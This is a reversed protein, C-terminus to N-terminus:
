QQTVFVPIIGKKGKALAGLAKGLITGPKPGQKPDVPAAYRSASSTTLLDGPKVAIKTADVKCFAYAGLTVMLGVSASEGVAASDVDQWEATPLSPEDVVGCVRSDEAESSLVIEALPIRGTILATHPAADPNLIVVDGRELKTKGMYVFRDAVYGTKPGTVVLSGNIRVNGQVELASAPTITNVGVRGNSVTLVDATGSGLMLRNTGGQAYIRADGAGAGGLAVGMKLRLNHNGIKLDGETGAVNWEGGTIHLQSEPANTGLGVNGAQTISMRAAFGTYFDLGGQNKGPGGLRASAIGEGSTSGFTIGPAITGGNKDAQDINLGANVSLNQQPVPTGIGVNGGSQLFLRFDAVGTEAFNLGRILKTGGSTGQMNQNLHWRTMGTGDELSLLEENTGRARIGLACRPAVTGIGVNGAGPPNASQIFLRGETPTGAVVEAVSIGPNSGGPNECIRWTERKADSRFQILEGDTGHAVLTLPSLPTTDTPDLRAGILANTLGNILGDSQTTRDVHLSGVVEANVGGFHPDTPSSPLPNPANRDQITLTGGPALISEAVAGAYERGQVSSDQAMSVFVQNHPDWMVRGIGVFWNLTTDDDAFEQFPVSGDAPLVIEGPDPPTALPVTSMSTGDVILPDNPPSTPDSTVAIRFSEQVRGYASAQNPTRCADKAARTLSQDYAIWLYMPKPAAGPTPDYYPRFPDQTLQTKSLAVIERGFGDVAMGPMLYLDVENNPGGNSVQALELGAVIGWTHQGVNHRRRMDRHYEQEATFDVAGLYEGEYYNLREIDTLNAM